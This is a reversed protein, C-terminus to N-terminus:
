SYFSKERSIKSFGASEATKQSNINSGAPCYTVYQIHPINLIHESLAVINSVAYGRRRYNEHTGVGIEITDKKKGNIIEFSKRYDNWCATSVIKDKILTGYYVGQRHRDVHVYDEIIDYQVTQDFKITTGQKKFLNLKQLDNIAYLINYDLKKM